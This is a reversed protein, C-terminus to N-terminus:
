TFTKRLNQLEEKIIKNIDENAKEVMEWIAGEGYSENFDKWSNKIDERSKSHRRSINKNSEKKSVLKNEKWRWKRWFMTLSSGRNPECKSKFYNYKNWDQGWYIMKGFLKLRILYDNDEYEGALFSEDLMGVNRILEKTFGCFAFGFLSAFCYGSCLKDVIFELDEACVITKPNIFIMFESETEDISENAMQSYTQCNANREHRFYEELEFTLKSKDIRALQWDAVNKEGTMFCIAVKNPREIM